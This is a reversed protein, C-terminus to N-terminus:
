KVLSFFLTWTVQCVSTLLSLLLYEKSLSPDEELLDKKTNNISNLWDKLEM